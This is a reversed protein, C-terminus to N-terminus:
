FDFVTDENFDVMNSLFFSIDFFDLVGDENLDAPCDSGNLADWAALDDADVDGDCDLDGETYFMGEGTFAVIIARDDADVDGDLDFDGMSSDLIGEVMEVVDDADVVLDGNMDASLDIHVAQNINSWDGFNACVYDVDAGDVMGDYGNPRFGRTPLPNIAGFGFFDASAIDGRSDGNDYVGTVLSTGFYNGGAADDVAIFGAKRDLNGGVLHLGDAFYRVDVDNFNGDADFDGLIELCARGDPNVSGGNWSGSNFAFNYAAIMDAADDGNRLGDGNFDGAILNRNNDMDGDFDLDGIFSGYDIRTGDISEFHTGGSIGDDYTVGITRTPVIGGTNTNYSAYESLALVNNPDNLVFQTLVDNRDANAVIPICIESADPNTEPVNFSTAPLVFQIGLFEGPSFANAPDSPVASVAAVSRTINNVYAAAQPNRMPQVPNPNPGVESADWGWGGLNAPASRPDGITAIGGLGQINYGDAGGDVVNEITPRAFVTGGKLDAQVAFVELEGDILWGKSQGREAGTHGVGLRTNKVTAEMRSSGGKNSPTFDPGAKDNVSSSTKPGINEGVGWSPDLCIGNMFANRTGSGSDRTVVMLNEGNVRRGTANLHRLDSMQIEQIGVGLNTIAAVPTLTVPTDFITFEDPSNVNTNFTVGNPSVLTKLKNGQEIEFGDGDTAVRPNNGYGPAGPVRNYQSDGSDNIVFWSVPVDLASFDIQVGTGPGTMTTIAFTGDDLTRYPTAGPNSSDAAGQTIGAAVFLQTNFYAADAEDSNLTLNMPDLDDETAFVTGWDRMEAFGNGSGTVRYTFQWHQNSIFPPTSDFPALQEQTIGDGDADIFDLTNAPAKFLAELLTAGSGNVGFPQASAVSTAAGCAAVMLSLKQINTM